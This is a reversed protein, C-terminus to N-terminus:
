EEEKLSEGQPFEVDPDDRMAAQRMYADEYSVPESEASEQAPKEGDNSVPVEGPDEQPAEMEGAAIEREEPPYYEDYADYSEFENGPVYDDKKKRNVLKIAIFIVLALLLIGGGIIMMLKPDLIALKKKSM